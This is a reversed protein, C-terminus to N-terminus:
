YHTVTVAYTIQATQNGADFVEVCYAGANVTGSLQATSGAQVLTSGNTLLTCTGNAYSGVGLGEYITTPPGAATLIINLQYGSNTVTFQNVSVGSPDVTGTFNETVITASPSTPSTGSDSGSNDCSACLLSTVCVTVATLARLAAHVRKM